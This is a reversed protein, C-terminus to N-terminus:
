LDPGNLESRKECLRLFLKASHVALLILLIEVVCYAARIASYACNVSASKGDACAAAYVVIKACDPFFIGALAITALLLLGARWWLADGVRAIETSRDDKKNKKPLALAAVIEPYWIGLLAGVIAALLSAASLLDSM